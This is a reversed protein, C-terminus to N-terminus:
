ICPFCFFVAQLAPSPHRHPQIHPWSSAQTASSHDRHPLSSAQTASSHHMRPVSFAQTASSHHRHPLPSPRHPTLIIGTHCLLSGTHCFFSAQTASSHRRHPLASAQAAFFVAQTASSHHRHPLSSQRHPPLIIGTNCLLSTLLRFAKISKIRM